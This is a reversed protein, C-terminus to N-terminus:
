LVAEESAGDFSVTQKEPSVVVDSAGIKELSESIKKACGGCKINVVNVTTSM